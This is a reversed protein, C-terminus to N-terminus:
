FTNATQSAHTGDGASPNIPCCGDLVLTSLQAAYISCGTPAQGMDRAKRPVNGYGCSGTSRCFAGACCTSMSSRVRPSWRVLIWEPSLSGEIHGGCDGRCIWSGCGAPYRMRALITRRRCCTICLNAPPAIVDPGCEAM